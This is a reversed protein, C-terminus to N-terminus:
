LGGKMKKTQTTLVAVLFYLMGTTAAAFLTSEWDLRIAIKLFIMMWLAMIGSGTIYPEYNKKRM